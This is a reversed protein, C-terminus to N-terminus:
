VSRWRLSKRPSALMMPCNSWGLTMWRSPTNVRLQGTSMTVSNMSFPASSEKRLTPM